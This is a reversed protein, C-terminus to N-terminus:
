RVFRNRNDVLTVMHSRDRSLTELLSSETAFFAATPQRNEAPPAADYFLDKRLRIHSGFNEAEPQADDRVLNLQVPATACSAAEPPVMSSVDFVAKARPSAWSSREMTEFSSSSEATVLAAAHRVPRMLSGAVVGQVTFFLVFFIVISRRGLYQLGGTM